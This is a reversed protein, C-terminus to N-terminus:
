GYYYYVLTVYTETYSSRDTSGTVIRLIWNTKNKLIRASCEISGGNSAVTTGSSQRLIPFINLATPSYSYGFLHVVRVNLGIIGADVDKYSANPLTGCDITKQYLTDGTLWKGIVQEGTSFNFSPVM